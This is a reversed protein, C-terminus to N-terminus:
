IVTFGSASVPIVSYTPSPSLICATPIKSVRAPHFVAQFELSIGCYSTAFNTPVMKTLGLILDDELLLYAVQLMCNCSIFINLLVLCYARAQSERSSLGFVM